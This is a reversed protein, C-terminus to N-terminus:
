FKSLNAAALRELNQADSTRDDGLFQNLKEKVYSKGEETRAQGKEDISGLTNKLYNKASDIDPFAGENVLAKANKELLLQYQNGFDVRDSIGTLSGLADTVRETTIKLKGLLGGLEKDQDYADELIKLSKKSDLGYKYITSINITPIYNKKIM